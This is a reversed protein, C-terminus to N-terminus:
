INIQKLPFTLLELAIIRLIRKIEALSKLTDPM